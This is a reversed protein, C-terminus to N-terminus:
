VMRVGDTPERAPTIMPSIQGMRNATPLEWFVLQICVAGRMVMKVTSVNVIAEELDINALLYERIIRECQVLSFYNAILVKL